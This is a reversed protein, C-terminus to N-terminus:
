PGRDVIGQRSGVESQQRVVHRIEVRVGEQRLEAMLGRMTTEIAMNAARRSLSRAVRSPSCTSESLTRDLAARLPRIERGKLRYGVAALERNLEAYQRRLAARANAILRRLHDRNDRPAQVEALLARVGDAVGTARGLYIGKQRGAERYVVSYYPGCRGEGRGRWTTVVSGQRAFLARRALIYERIAKLRHM